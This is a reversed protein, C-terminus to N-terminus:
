YPTPLSPPPMWWSSPGQLPSAYDSFIVSGRRYPSLTLVEQNRIFCRYEAEWEVTESVHVLLGLPLHSAPSILANALGSPPMSRSAWPRNSHFCPEQIGMANKLHLLEIKRRSFEEPLDILWQSSCGLLISDLRSAVNFAKPVTCYIAHQTNGPSMGRRSFERGSIPIDGMARGRSCKRLIKSETNYSSSLILTPM